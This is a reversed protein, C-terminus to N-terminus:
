GCMGNKESFFNDFQRLDLFLARLQLVAAQAEDAGPPEEGILHLECRLKACEFLALLAGHRLCPWVWGM